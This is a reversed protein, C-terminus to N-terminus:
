KKIMKIAIEVIDKTYYYMFEELTRSAPIPCNAAAVRDCDINGIKESLSAIVEAGWGGRKTGEEVTIIKRCPGVFRILSEIPLPSILCPVIINTNIEENRYLYEAAELAYEVAVGYTLITIDAPEEPNITFNYTPFAKEESQVTFYLYNSSEIQKLEKAYLSKSEIFVVPQGLHISNILLSGPNHFLSPCVINLGPIGIFLKELNQSHTPGYGRRGGMPTRLVMSLEKKNKYMWAYKAAHNILQDAALTIFDGFMIEVIPKYNNLACGVAIATIAAESIPTTLVREPYKTSLGKTVKFAGGYPDLIDEGLVFVRHDLEMISHLGQNLTKLYTVGTTSEPKLIGIEKFDVAKELERIGLDPKPSTFTKSKSVLLAIEEDVKQEIEYKQDIDIRNMLLSLSDIKRYEEIESKDRDDDGKSHASLRYTYVMQFFPRQQNRVFAIDEKLLSDLILPDRSNTENYHIGFAEARLPISGSLGKEIPTSQAYLNNEMLFLVPLSWLAAINLSEYVIGEGLTGDGLFVVVINEKGKFKEALAAGLSNGVIGGQIGNSHFNKYCLHQSGGRGGNLGEEKGMIEALLIEPNGGYALYHGHCRHNSFVVDEEGLNGMLAVPIAEQGISTHTTGSLLGQDFLDLLMEEFKRIFLIKRYFETDSGSMIFNPYHYYPRGSSTHM